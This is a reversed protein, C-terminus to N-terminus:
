QNQIGLLKGVFSYYPEKEGSLSYQANLMMKREYVDCARKIHRPDIRTKEEKILAIILRYTKDLKESFGDDTTVSGERLHLCYKSKLPAWGGCLSLVELNHLIDQSPFDCFHGVRDRNCVPWFSSGSQGFVSFDMVSDDKGLLMRPADHSWIETRSYAAGHKQALPLLDALYGQGWTDDADLFAVFKGKASMVARNRALGPGSRYINCDILRVNNKVFGTYDLADDVSLIIEISGRDVGSNEISALCREITAHANFVPIIISVTVM